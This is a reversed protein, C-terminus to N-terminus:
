WYLVYDFSQIFESNVDVFEFEQTSQTVFPHHKDSNQILVPTLDYFEFSEVLQSAAKFAHKLSDFSCESKLLSLGADQILVSVKCGFTALVMTASISEHINLGTLNSQTLVILVTRM